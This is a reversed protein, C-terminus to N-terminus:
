VLARAHAWAALGVRDRAGSKGLLNHVHWKATGTTIFLELGIEENSRGAAVLRLVELERASLPEVYPATDERGSRADPAGPAVLRTQGAMRGLLDDVFAPAVHRSRRLRASMPLVPDLFVMRREEAACADLAEEFAERAQPSAGGREYAAALVLLTEAARGHRGGARQSALLPEATAVAARWAGSGLQVRARTLRVRDPTAGIPRTGAASARGIRREAGAPDGERLLLEASLADMALDIRPVEHRRGDRRAAEVRQWAQERHGLAHLALAEQWEAAGLLLARLNGRELLDWGTAIYQRAADLDAAEYRAVGLLLHVMGIAPAHERAAVSADITDRCLREAAGRRGEALLTLALSYVTGFRLASPGSGDALRHAEEFAPRAAGVDTGILAEGLITHALSRFM